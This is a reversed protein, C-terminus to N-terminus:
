RRCLWIYFNYFSLIIHTIKYINMIWCHYIKQKLNLDKMEYVEIEVQFIKWLILYICITPLKNFLWNWIEVQGKDILEFIIKNKKSPILFKDIKIITLIGFTIVIINNFFNRNRTSMLHPPYTIDISDTIHVTKLNMQIKTGSKWIFRSVFWQLYWWNFNYCIPLVNGRIASTVKM